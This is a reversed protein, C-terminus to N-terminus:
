GEEGPERDRLVLALRRALAPQVRRALGFFADRATWWRRLEAGHAWHGAVEVQNRRPNFAREEGGDVLTPV